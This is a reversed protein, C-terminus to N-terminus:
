EITITLLPNLVELESKYLTHLTTLIDKGIFDDQLHEKQLGNCVEEFREVEDEVISKEFSLWATLKGKSPTHYMVIARKAKTPTQTESSLVVFSNETLTIM